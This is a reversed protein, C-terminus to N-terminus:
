PISGRDDIARRLAHLAYHTRSKITGTPVGLTEAAEAVSAGRFYCEFLVRRHDTSLTRLATLVLNRDVAQETADDVAREPVMDTVLEPRRNAARWQDIAIREAVTFLWGRASRCPSRDCGASPRNPSSSTTGIAVARAIPAPPSPDVKTIPGM